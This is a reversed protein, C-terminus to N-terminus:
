TSPKVYFLSSYDHFVTNKAFDCIARNRAAFNIFIALYHSTIIYMGHSGDMDNNNGSFM